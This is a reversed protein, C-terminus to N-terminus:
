IEIFFITEPCGLGHLDTQLVVDQTNQVNSFRGRIFQEELGNNATADCICAPM